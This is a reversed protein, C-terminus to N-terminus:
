PRSRIHFFDGRLVEAVKEVGYEVMVCAIQKDFFIFFQLKRLITGWSRPPHNLETSWGIM